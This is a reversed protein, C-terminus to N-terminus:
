ADSPEDDVSPIKATEPWGDSKGTVADRIEDPTPEDEDAPVTLENVPVAAEPSDPAVEGTGVDVGDPAPEGAAEDSGTPQAPVTEGEIVPGTGGLNVERLREGYLESGEREDAEAAKALTAAKPLLKLVQRIATKREMWLMPDAIKGSPGEKGNRLRKVDDPALVVFASGGSSLAAVAYYCVVAGRDGLAPKHRLFPELGYAYDFDDREYVAQADLTKAMPNQWFLKAYGQYGVILNCEKGYPVLYCEGNVGPELGLAAATLLAGAFSRMDCKTLAPTKRIETLAIRAVRDADMHKPLARALEPRLSQILEGISKPVDDQPQEGNGNQAVDSGGGNKQAVRQALGNAM